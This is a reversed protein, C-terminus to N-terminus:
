RFSSSSVSRSSGSAIKWSLWEAVIELEKLHRMQFDKWVTFVDCWGVSTSLDLTTAAYCTQQTGITSFRSRVISESNSPDYLYVKLANELHYLGTHIVPHSLSKKLFCASVLTSLAQSLLFVHYHWSRLKLFSLQSIQSADSFCNERGNNIWAQHSHKVPTGGYVCVACHLNENM